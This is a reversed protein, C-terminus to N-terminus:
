GAPFTNNSTSTKRLFKPTRLIESHHEIFKQLLKLQIPSLLVIDIM